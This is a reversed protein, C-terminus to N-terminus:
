NFKVNQPPPTLEQTNVFIEKRWKGKSYKKANVGLPIIKWLSTDGIGSGEISLTFNGGTEFPITMYRENEYAIGDPVPKISTKGAASVSWSAVGSKTVLLAGCDGYGRTLARLFMVLEDISRGTASLANIYKGFLRVPSASFAARLYVGLSEEASRDDGDLLLKIEDRARTSIDWDVGSIIELTSSSLEPLGSGDLKEGSAEFLPSEWKKIPLGGANSKLMAEIHYKGVAPPTFGSSRGEASRWAARDDVDKILVGSVLKQGPHSVDTISGSEGEFFKRAVPNMEIAAHRTAMDAVLSLSVEPKVGVRELLPVVDIDPNFADSMRIVIPNFKGATVVDPLVVETIRLDVGIQFDVESSAGLRPIEAKIREVIPSAIPVAGAWRYSVSESIGSICRVEGSSAPVGGIILMGWGSEASLRVDIVTGEALDPATVKIEIEQTVGSVVPLAPLAVSLNIPSDACVGARVNLFMLFAACAALTIKKNISATMM